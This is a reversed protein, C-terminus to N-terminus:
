RNEAYVPVKSNLNQPAFFCIGLFKINLVQFVTVDLPMYFADINDM